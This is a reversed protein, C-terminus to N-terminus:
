QCSKTAKTTQSCGTPTCTRYWYCITCTGDSECNTKTWVGCTCLPQNNFSGNSITYTIPFSSQDGLKVDRLELSCTGTGLVKFTLTALSANGTFGNYPSKASYAAQYLVNNNDFWKISDFWLNNTNIKTSTLNLLSNNWYFKFDFGYLNIVSDVKVDVTFNSGPTLNPNVISSPSVYITAGFVTKAFLISLVISVLLLKKIM